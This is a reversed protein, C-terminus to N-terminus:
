YLHKLFILFKLLDPYLDHDRIKEVREDFYTLCFKMAIIHPLNFKTKFIKILKLTM